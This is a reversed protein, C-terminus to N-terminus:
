PMRNLLLTRFAFIEKRLEDYFGTNSVTNIIGQNKRSVDVIFSSLYTELLKNEVSIEKLKQEANALKEINKQSKVKMSNIRACINVYELFEKTIDLYYSFYKRLGTRMKVNDSDTLVFVSKETQEQSAQIDDIFESLPVQTFGTIKAGGETCNFHNSNEQWEAKITREFENIFMAFDHPSKVTGGYYGPVEKLESGRDIMSNKVKIAKELGDSDAYFKDGDFALDQGVLAINKIKWIACLNLAVLSVNAGYALPIELDLYQSFESNVLANMETWVFQKTPIELTVQPASAAVVFLPIEFDLKQKLKEVLDRDPASDVHVVVDPMIGEKLLRPVAHLVSIILAEGKIRKLEHINKSLSPGPAVIIATNPNQLAIQSIHPSGILVEANTMVNTMWTRSNTKITNFTIRHTTLSDRISATIQNINEVDIQGENCYFLHAGQIPSKHSLLISRCEDCSAAFHLNESEILDCKEKINDTDYILIHSQGRDLFCAIIMEHSPEILVAWDKEWNWRLPVSCDIFINCIEPDWLFKNVEHESGFIALRKTWNSLFYDAKTIIDNKVPRTEDIAQLTSLIYRREDVVLRLKDEDNTETFEAIEKSLKNYREELYDAASVPPLIKTASKTM